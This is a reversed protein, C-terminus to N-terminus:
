PLKYCNAYTDVSPCIVQTESIFKPPWLSGATYPIFQKRRSSCQSRPNSDWELCQNRQANINHKHQETHLYRRAVPRDGTWPTRGGTYLILFSFFRGPDM